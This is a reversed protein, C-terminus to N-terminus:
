QKVSKSPAAFKDKLVSLINVAPLIFKRDGFSGTIQAVISRAVGYLISSGNTYIMKSKAEEPLPRTFRFQGLLHLHIQYKDFEQPSLGKNLDVVMDILFINPDTSHKKVDFDVKTTSPLPGTAGKSMKYNSSFRLDSVIYDELQLDAFPSM